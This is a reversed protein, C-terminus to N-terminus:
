RAYGQTHRTALTSRCLCVDALWLRCLVLVEEDCRRLMRVIEDPGAQDITETYPCSQSTLPVSPYPAPLPLPAKQPAAAPPVFTDPYYGTVDDTTQFIFGPRAGSFDDCQEMRKLKPTVIAFRFLTPQNLGLRISPSKM